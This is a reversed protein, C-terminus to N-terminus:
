RETKGMFEIVVALKDAASAILQSSEHARQQLEGALKAYEKIDEIRGAQEQRLEGHLKFVYFVLLAFAVGVSGSSAIATILSSESM